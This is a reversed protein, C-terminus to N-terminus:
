VGIGPGDAAYESDVTTDEVDVEIGKDRLGAEAVRFATSAIRRPPQVTARKTVTETLASDCEKEETEWTVTEVPELEVFGDLGFVRTVGGDPTEYSGLRASEWYDTDYLITELNKVYSQVLLHYAKSPDGGLKGTAVGRAIDEELRRISAKLEYIEEIRKRRVLDELAAHDPDM